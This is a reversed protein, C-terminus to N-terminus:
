CLLSWWTGGYDYNIQVSRCCGYRGSFNRVIKFLEKKLENKIASTVSSLSVLKAVHKASRKSM